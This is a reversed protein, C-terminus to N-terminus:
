RTPSAGNRIAGAPPGGPQTKPPLPPPLKYKYVGQETMYGRMNIIIPPKHSKGQRARVAAFFSRRMRAGARTGPDISFVVHMPEAKPKGLPRVLAHVRKGHVVYTLVQVREHQYPLRISFGTGLAMWAMVLFLVLGTLWALVAKGRLRLILLTGWIALLFLLAYKVALTDLLATM